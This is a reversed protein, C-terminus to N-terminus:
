KICRIPFFTYSSGSGTNIADEDHNIEITQLGGTGDYKITYVNRTGMGYHSNWNWSGM